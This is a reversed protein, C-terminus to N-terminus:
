LSVGPRIPMVEPLYSGGKASVDEGELVPEEAHIEGQRPHQLMEKFATARSTKEM